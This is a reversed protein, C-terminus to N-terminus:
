KGNKQMLVYFPTGALLKIYEPARKLDIDIRLSKFLLKYTLVVEGMVLAEYALVIYKAALFRKRDKFSLYKDLFPYKDRLLLDTLVAEYKGTKKLLGEKDTRLSRSDHEVMVTTPTRSYILGSLAIVRIWLHNDEFLNFELPFKHDKVLNKHICVSNTQLLSEHFINYLGKNRIESFMKGEVRKGSIEKYYHTYYLAEKFNNASITKYLESLHNNLYYDDSDIFCIFDGASLEIGNNRAASREANQQYVYKIRPDNTYSEVVKRTGDTSGDDIVILEWFPFEQQLVSKIAKSIMEERNFVPLVVSFFVDGPSLDNITKM